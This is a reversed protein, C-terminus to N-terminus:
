NTKKIEDVMDQIKRPNNIYLSILDEVIAGIKLNKGKCLMKLKNHTESEILISKLSM